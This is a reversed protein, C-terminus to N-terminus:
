PKVRRRSRRRRRAGAHEVELGVGLEGPRQLVALAKRDVDVAGRALQQEADRAEPDLGDVAQEAGAAVGREAEGIEGAQGRGQPARQGEEDGGVVAGGAEVADVEAGPESRGGSCSLRKAHDGDRKGGAGVEVAEAGGDAPEDGGARPGLLDGPRGRM